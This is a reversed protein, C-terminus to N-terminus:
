RSKKLKNNKMEISKNNKVVKSNSLKENTEEENKKTINQIKKNLNMLENKNFIKKLDLILVVDGKYDGAGMVFKNNSEFEIKNMQVIENVQNTLFGLKQNDISVIIVRSFDTIDTVKGWKFRKKLDIIPFIEGRLNMFGRVYDASNPIRTIKGLKNIEIISNMEIAYKENDLEFLIYKEKKITEEKKTCKSKKNLVRINNNIIFKPDLIMVSMNKYKLFGKLNKNEKITLPIKKIEPTSILFYTNDVILAVKVGDVNIIILKTYESIFTKKNYLFMNLDVVPLVEDRVTIIGKVYKPIKPVKNPIIYKIIEQIDNIIFGYKENNLEFVMVKKLNEKQIKRKTKKNLEIKTINTKKIEILKEINLLIYDKNNKKLVSDIYKSESEIKSDIENLIGKTKDVMIGFPTKGNIIIIKSLENYNGNYGLRKKLNIIPLLEGRLNILGEIYDPLLPIKTIKKM